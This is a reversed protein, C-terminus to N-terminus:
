GKMLDTVSKTSWFKCSWYGATTKDKKQDCNHRARFAKRRAPDDRKISMNPDGFEVKVVNGKDNKVYVKYKKVDGRTPNNLEKGSKDDKETMEGWANEMSNYMRMRYDGKAKDGKSKDADNKDRTKMYDMMSKTRAYKSKKRPEYLNSTGKVKKLAEDFEEQTMSEPVCNPVEKGGKMKMGVQKYNDWCPGKAEHVGDACDDCCVGIKELMSEKVEQLKWWWDDGHRLQYSARTMNSEFWEQVSEPGLVEEKSLLGAAKQKDMFRQFADPSIGKMFTSKKTRKKPEQGDDVKADKNKRLGQVYKIADAKTDHVSTKKKRDLTFNVAYKGAYPGKSVKFVPDRREEIETEEPHHSSNVQKALDKDAKGWTGSSKTVFSNVRAFAWQQPTTGPRHGTKWAAMGRDYVKKLIGYPMGSKEAKTVLGEIKEDLQYFEMNSEVFPKVKVKREKEVENNAKDLISKTDSGDFIIPEPPDGKIWDGDKQDTKPDVQGPYHTFDEKKDLYAAIAMDKRKEKSKGKFQPADSKKFDDIYDGMDAGAPLKEGFMQKFKKTHTSQKTTANADGPAPGTKNKKFHADRKDKTSKSMADGDADKAFYKAPQSGKKDVVDKDQKIERLRPERRNDSPDENKLNSPDNNMPDNDKHGVDMGKVVKDGMVRRAKNRSSRRAIQEPTGQYNAYEQAYNREVIDYLWTKHVKGDESVYSLYNTGKNIVKGSVGKSEVIDGINWLKGTLYLDRLSEFDTMEGMDREERIGMNKRVDNYLKLADKFGSPVGMKFTDFDGDSASSRMKSASMGSVGEADPDREGASVVEINDFGYYGHRANVGNYKNLLTDFETVRDSGVVMVISRHGKNHLDVAIDFVMKVKKNAMINKAYKPFMKRMYAIKIAFPLPDKKPNQSQSPFVYMKSGSNASQQKALADILKEHGTTPPNFRGFTFVATDGAKENIDSFSRM